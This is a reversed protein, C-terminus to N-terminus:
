SSCMANQGKKTQIQADSQFIFELHISLSFIYAGVSTGVIAYVKEIHWLRSKTYNITLILTQLQLLGPIFVM